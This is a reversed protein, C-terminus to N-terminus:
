LQPEPALVGVAVPVVGNISVPPTSAILTGSPYAYQDILNNTTDVVYLNQNKADLGISAPVGTLAVNSLLTGASSYVQLSSNSPSSVVLNQRRDVQLDGAAGNPAAALRRLKSTGGIFEDIHGNGAADDFAWFVNGHTDVAVGGATTGAATDSLIATPSSSGQPYVLVGAAGSPNSVSVYTTFTKANVGAAVAEAGPDTQVGLQGIISFGIKSQSLVASGAPGIPVVVFRVGQEDFPAQHAIPIAQTECIWLPGNCVRLIKPPCWQGYQELSWQEPNTSTEVWATASSYGLCPPIPPMARFSAAAAAVARATYRASAPTPISFCPSMMMIGVLAVRAGRAYM